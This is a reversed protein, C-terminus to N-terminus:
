AKETEEISDRDSTNDNPNALIKSITAATAEAHEQLITMHGGEVDVRTHPAEWTPELPDIPWLSDGEERVRARLVVTPTAVPEPQWEKFARMYAAMAVLRDGDVSFGSAEADRMWTLLRLMLQDLREPVPWYPDLLILAAPQAGARELEAAVLHALWGGSSNGLLAFGEPLDAALIAEAHVRVAARLNLPLPDGARFGLLPSALVTRDGDFAAALRAHEHPGSIAIASHLTVLAPAGEGRALTLLRSAPDEAQLEATRFLSIAGLLETFEALREGDVAEGLLSVLGGTLPDSGGTAAEASEGDGAEVATLKTLVLDVVGEVTPSGALAFVPVPLGTTAVIRNRLEVAALSDFGLEVLERGADIGAASEHGLVQAAHSHVLDRVAREREEEPLAALKRALEENPGAGRPVDVLEGLLPPLMDVSAMMRLAQRDFAVAVVHGRGSALAADFLALGREDSLPAVGGRRMREVAAEDLKETLGSGSEWYGWAISTAALGEARRREALADLFVNAAAYNGQGPAGLVGAGASFCVFASLDLERTLEHLHWAADLKAAFVPEFREPTLSEITADDLAGATHVVAGLPRDAPISALLAELAARDAVDCAAFSVEAGLRELEERLEAAGPAREGRRSALLLRRAGHEAALHRVTLSGLTGTAGTVLVTREPDIAPQAGDEGAAPSDLRAARPVFAAGERLALQPEGTALAAPLATASAEAGDADVLVFRGPHESQASRVLGWAAALAPDPREGEAAAVAGETLIALRREAREPDAVWEQLRSLTAATLARARQVPDGGAGDAECAWVEVSPDAGDGPELPRWEIAMLGAGRRGAGADGPWYRERQFPYTPLAVPRTGRGAFHAEWDVAVGNAHAQALSLSFRRAGGEDRRLTGIVAPREHESLVTELTERVALAFVPHPSVEIFAHRGREILARTAQEFLVPQRLNRYWYEPTLERTDLPGGTVTSHFPVDGARPALPALAELLEDRLPEVRASHSPITAPIERARVGEAECEAVLEAAPGPDASLITSHPGNRAAIEIGGDWRALRPELEEAALAVSVMSGQGALRSILRSRLAAIRAADELTLGGSIHAAAIEGQSHGLTAAPEVGCARWLKALAVMVAFLAPQVVEIRELSAAGPVGALADRLSWDLHPALAEECEAFFRAFSPSEALLEVGMGLWQSGQGPFLFVPAQDARAAGLALDPSEEGAALARLAALHGERDAAASVARQEFRARTLALSYALDGADLEPRAEVHDLLRAAVGALAEPSKASLVLPPAGPLPPQPVGEGEKGAGDGDAAVAPPPSPPQELVVHANTGSIGFASVAARRPRGNAQWEVPETLLEVAGAEWEIKTSPADVHLTRPLVGERMALVSKIVGAVGAAAAAHGINSKVSGLWLPRERERGYTALLAGAEIPDGLSTGTGHAEVADVDGPELGANALAQRIVREQSPGNPATLGNSAGDQNVASGRITALVRHGNALADSLRELVLMGSGEAFGTGDAAEAFSKCRGDPAIGGAGSVDMTGFPTAFVSVGGSLALDCEGARLANAALHLAVLSSSCATDVTMTPGVLGLAYAIRGSIVSLGRDTTSSAVGAAGAAYAYDGASAGIFVGAETGRLATPDLAADELAEWAGELPLRQQPDISLADRPSIGFFGPDFEGADPLFGGFAAAGDLGELSEPDVGRDDPFPGIADRGEELMRWFDEPSAVGGPYRCSMGVIAIPEDSIRAKVAVQAGAGVAGAETLLHAALAAASPYDFIVTAALQVGSAASLRNRLELAALSDFGLEQFARDPEIAAASSHGLVAATHTRVLDLVVAPREDEPVEGLRVALSGAARDDSESVRVLGRLVSSLSGAAARSRLAAADFPAPVFLPEPRGLAADLLDLGQETPMPAFGLRMRIQQAYRDVLERDVGKLAGQVLQELWLGWALSTAPLGAARRSAALADGFVNAAAYAAQGAGGVVGAASSFLLFHSLDLEETLEHLHLAADVKPRMVRELREGDLSELTADDFVAASHVVAGLPHEDPIAALTAALAARDTVDCAVVTVSAGCGELEARLGAAGPAEEGRRSLLLLHRAGHAEALHRAVLAGLGSTGGTVLVTREPDLAGPAPLSEPPEGAVALRPALLRGDRVAIQPEREALALARPLAAESEPAGDLDVLAFRDPRESHASRILGALPAAALNPAEGPATSVAGETLFALRGEPAEEGAIWKRAEALGRAAVARASGALGPEGAGWSRADLVVAGPPEPEAAAEVEVWEVRHLARLSSSRRLEDSDLEEALAAGISGLPAGDASLLELRLGDEARALAARLAPQGALAVSVERFSSALLPRGAREGAAALIMDFGAQLLPDLLAPHLRFRWADGEQDEALAVEAFGQDGGRRWVAGLGRFAAGHDFGAEALRDYLHEADLREAGEPPWADPPGPAPAAGAGLEGEAHLTWRPDPEEESSEPRAHVQLPREGGSGPAGVIVRLQVAGDETLTLPARLDLQAVSGCGAQEAARLALELLLAGPVLTVGGVAHDRLWPHTALSLRGALVLSEDVPSEIAAGLLPHGADALGMSGADAPAAPPAEPWYRQRQFPYTPLKVRRTGAGFFAPWEVRAGSAHAAALAATLARAEPRGERLTAILAPPKEEAAVCEAAMATLAPDPGLEVLTTAGQALLAAVGDAFRVPQRAHAVWYAPDAAQAASLLEGTLNSVVPIRPEAPELTAVLEVFPELMPEILPSHFAHSVELRKVKRGEGRWREEQEAVAAAAGSVVVSRPANVAAISLEAERGALAAAVEAETAEVALMAGGAPLAGMLAGRACVLQAADALTLVGGLHAAVIEGVSHGALLDPRLGWSELLRCLAVETAFLAPQAYTTDGLLEAEPSGPAAFVLEALPRDLHPDLAEFAQELARAYAPHAERLEAGMGPRQSGQGTFLFATRGARARAVIAGPDGTAIAELERRLEERDAGIAAARHELSPRTELLSAAVDALRQGPHRELHAALRRAADRLADESKASIILPLAGALPGVEAEDGATTSTAPIRRSTRGSPAQAVESPEELVMHVNTGSIGFSSVAARRPHGNARWPEAETLLEVAGLDWDVKTSPADVHLTKPMTGARMALVAKLLGAIGAAASTHGINSKVSGIKLPAERDRGYTALLAGAEIPDGLTTGTGHTEVMDVEAPDVGANALAQRIVREQSPGNPATLGNSAGDQNVASGRITALVAHGNREADALRELVVVGTGEAFATGDAGEAFAKCRGDAALGGLNSFDALGVPTIFVSVGGAIALDCEGGRLARSALHTAVLASSCATDVTMAPGVLGLTYAVRGSIVSSSGGVIPAGAGTALIAQQYESAGAGVFVGADGGRLSDPDIGADELAEWAAELLLRQQPDIARAERPSIGFFGPDFEAVDELFCGRVDPVDWGRDAPFGGVADRGTALLEWLRDPSDAGGGFRCAMGVIAVPEDSDRGQARVAVQAAGGAASLRELLHAALEAATPYDFAVTAALRLGTAIRLRNRLELAALSDFGLDKFARGADVEEASEYGLVAGVQSRVLELLAAEREGAALEALRRAFAGAVAEHAQAGPVLGSLLSPLAGFSAMARLGASDLGAALADARGCGLALDLLALGREDGLPAIGSARMRALDAEDIKATLESETEWYGWAISTAPLGAAQRRQALADLYANAAAYNGQGPSGLTGAASSFLVFHSLEAEATLEHLAWAADAKPAFVPDLREATLSEVTADDLAGAAHFVAGLPREAPIAALLAALAERDAVDCAAIEVEAGLQELEARLEAAGPAEEGRRSVLLLHRAGHATVLHKATLGGLAGTAGTLLVTREPDLEPAPDDGGEPRPLRAVRPALAAGERLALQPEEDQALAAALAEESADSGDLDVLLFSGAHESQASRVLGWIAAAAPDPAEAPATSVAGRTVIALRDGPSGEERALWAQLRELTAATLARAREPDDGRSSEATPDWVEVKGAADPETGRDSLELGDWEVGLLVDRRRAAERLREASVPRLELAAVAGLPAGSGDAIALSATEGAADIRVRLAAPGAGTLAVGRWAAPERLGAGDGDELAALALAQLAGDLLAPHLRFGGADAVREEALAVEAFVEEGRRWAASLSQFAPGHEFGAEALRDYLFTADLPEAGEPPWADLAAPEADDSASGALTGEANLSWEPREDEDEPNDELRSHIAIRRRGDDDAEAVSVRLQVAGAEPIVLPAQLDLEEVRECGAQWAARLALELLAAGSLVTTGAIAHEALWPHTSRALRGTLTLSEGDPDEIAAALLPHGAPVQGISRADALRPGSALWFRRTQFPYTPLPARKAGSGAFFDEWDVQAGAAHAEALSLCFRTAPDEERRLTDLVRAPSESAEIAEAIGFSLVPHPSIEIFHSRGQQLLAEIVPEFLVTERLNRYWYSADMRATDLLEGTLTSHLPIESSQPSIPAFAELLEEELQEIQASHAAYDVAIRRARVGQGECAGLLEAIAEPEGSVAQARPGNAAALSLREGYPALLESLEGAPLSVSAMAGKGAIKAMAASRLAIVRAADELCLAGAVHAAAVEGQSHGIVLSPRVGSAEWLRALSVMTAFLAPQVIDLREMWKGEEEELVETLSWDVHPALAAECEAISRAFLPSAQILGLAMRPHQSGQGGFAFVPRRETATRRIHDIVVYPAGSAGEGPAGSAIAQLSDLLQQRETGVAVARHEFASRTRALSYATDLLNQDPHERLHTALRAASERLADESKASLALPVPGTLPPTPAEGHGAEGDVTAEGGATATTGSPHSSTHGGPEGLTAEAQELIVHANTGSAGFSSVAARRPGGEKEWPQAETLLEIQGAEWDVKSSPADVHLTKPMVGERMALVAKIVGGVGAAAQTHGINSKLSGLKLPAERDQGYTALLAGAEIPDGLTTGTGHAEVMDIQGPELSANALAQRIVREQSPGNPATLGNSAGDQNVASGRITTLVSHGKAEADSLRELVLVGIGESFGAGDAAEAFSKCRGNPALGRQASFAAFVSPTALVTVGGALALNCEGARLAGAALHLAVLSSSCATDVTVAPGELGLTYAVRGSVISTTMGPALGLEAAGYDQYMVGAFVGAPEGRLTSPDIGADELAEWAGELLLRQQPDIVLAERPSIGFFEPDFDGPAELFGGHRTYSTGFSNPDPDYLRELDWGRDAPFEAIGEREEALMRWLGAPSAIGGPYRCSMGVIAIPEESAQARVAARRAPSAAGLQTLLHEALSQASPHDFVVTAGLRVGAVIGLRNRLELAALSDFGLEQFARLPDIADGSEHGLVAAVQSRVITLVAAAREEDPLEALQEALEGGVEEQRHPVRVLGSYLPPLAGVAALARLGDGDLGIALADAAPSALAQDLMALGQEEALPAIGGRRMRELDAETLKATLESETEWYGWAISTAPLGAARRRQALADLYANAAAYNGQGPGGLTGAASSFCVFHTLEAEATLEHLAWAADAKPAFVPDLREATLSEITADDLAGAAHFVAGLPREAPIAALLAELADREAVDCAAIEVEAGQEELEARLEAAGPAEPGSRSVLLLHRAGHATLLHKAALGGLTGTAGTILVTREPDIPPSSGAQAEAEGEAQPAVRTARPAFAAGERLALQPEEAQALAAELKAESAASGDSDLLLFSGPHEAQASRVLGWVAAAAPDPAEGEAVAFANRTLVAFREDPSGDERALWAQLAALAACAAARAAAPSGAGAEPEHRWLEVPAGAEAPALDRERWEVRLLGERRDRAARLQEPALPRLALSGVQVATAGDEAALTLSVRGEGGSALAVRLASAGPARVAVEGWSFPLSPAAEAGGQSAGLPIAHLAADLLAPHVAFAGAEGAQQEALALEAFVDEGRRWARTLNQFAPGYEYGAEALHDYLFTAELPEAGEPPWADLAPPAEPAEPALLGEANLAWPQQQELPAEPRSHIEIPREGGEGPEGVAVQVQVAGTEPLVLPARMTLERVQEMGLEQGARLALELLGTGPLLATGAVAHDALWPHTALSIRGTFLLEEGGAVSLAAGLLPHGADALGAAGLDAGGYEPSLWYRERQFPYTPLPVKRAGSGAFFDEWDVQAGAAHAAGLALTATESEPRGERLTPILAPPREEGEVCEAAMATLVPDPGLEVLATAGRALLTGVSDAFRVPSRVHSVWYAPDTAQKASLVEGSLNSVIPIQPEAYSLEAAVEAFADMMPEILPSHFAHSVQLRKTKRGREEWLSQQAEIAQGDGSIVTSTPSNLAAISLEAQLGEIAEAVEPESAQVALMAGGSPLAGMLAGRACILRAADPLSLVGAIQAASIEGVSHGALLEPLLGWSELLRHLALHTAFLAPQAYATDGLLEAQPSGPEAFLLDRLSLELHRDLEALAENLAEAYAPYTEHLEKGMGPRQSGQGSLLYALRGPSATATASSPSPRGEAIAQLSDLLQEREAGVAVARHPFASRTALLSHATDLLSQEPNAELHAKLRAASETLAQGSKASLALPVPHTLPPTPAEEGTAQEGATATTGSPHSPARGNPEGPTAEAQELIVHANTGSIGFSSVAARRPGTEKEWPEAETLLEVQGAEWDVKSSPEDVHLTKPMVGERMALVAKIVGGVGAAAQTHGVNSKFSGLKLPAERDQGYTAILATAEIPDGLTTGTGHGEVMDVDGTGLRANALAQRIVREQSPGNPATLGNSAGDQNVASGRITALVVHGNARADALRELVVVGLGEAWGVGDAAEAFSKCRGDAALGRQASFGTFVTPTALVTVGGVLALTCEGGRLGQAALHIATLSSSCATDVTVAPGELGLTYAVRGSVISTSMGPSLGLQPAGYDQYMVGAYVGAQSGRLSAPDIGADELAEWAGELLLRQQPDVILAERPSIKFFESDFEGADHLFGGQKTYTTGISEPDPDYLREVDWGRSNPFETIGDRGEAVMRWLERPSDVGGPYRCAMGVIAIPESAGALLRSNEKRLRDRDKLAARLAEVVDAKPQSM